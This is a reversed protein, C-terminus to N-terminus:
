KLINGDADFMEVSGFKALTTKLLDAKGACVIVLKDPHLYKKAVRLIDDATVAGIKSNYSNYYGKGLGYMEIAVIRSAVQSPTEIQIPFMGTLYSKVGDLEKQPVPETRIRGIEKLIEAVSSDTVANRVEAGASFPGRYLRADFGSRAGYTYGKDERLNLNLRSGFYGGLLTNMVTVPIYDPNKREVGVHGVLIASQVAGPKDVVEIKQAAVDAIPPFATGPVSARKWDKFLGSVLERMRKPTVDGVAVIFGNNPLFYKAHFDVIQERTLGKISAETGDSPKGYPHGGYVARAFQIGALANANAKRQLISALRQERSRDLEEAPFAPHLVADAMIEMGKDLYKSLISLSVTSNDWGAGAGLSGGLFEIEEAIATANRKATGKTLLEGTMSALGPAAGDNMSGGRIVLSVAVTPLEHQEYVILKLGNPLTEESYDPFKVDKPPGAKPPKSRDLPLQAHLTTMLISGLIILSTLFAAPPRPITRM